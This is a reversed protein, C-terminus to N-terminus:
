KRLGVNYVNQRRWAFHQRFYDRDHERNLKETCKRILVRKEYFGRQPLSRQYIEQHFNSCPAISEIVKVRLSCRERSQWISISYPFCGTTPSTRFILWFPMSNSM